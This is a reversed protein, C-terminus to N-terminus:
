VRCLCNTYAPRIDGPRPSGFWTGYADIPLPRGCGGEEPDHYEQAIGRSGTQEYAELNELSAAELDSAVTAVDVKYPWYVRNM